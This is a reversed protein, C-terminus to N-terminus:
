CSLYHTLNNVIKLNFGSKRLDVILEAIGDRKGIVLCDDYIGIM